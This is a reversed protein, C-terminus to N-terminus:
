RSEEIRLIQDAAADKLTQKLGSPWHIEVLRASSDKGLGFFVRKDNAALYSSTASVFRHQEFGGAGVVRIRAGVADRNSKHGLLHLGVWHNGNAGQNRLVVAPEDLCAVAMDAFGDNNLDGFAAGRGALPKGFADGAQGSVDAFKGAQNRLLKLPERYALNPQTLQINDMVHGQAVILDKWGDNDFDVLKMGWGSNLRTAAGVGTEAGVYEFTGKRNKYIAYRQSALANIVLDPWGDNDYDDFDIGMGGYTNGDEDYAVGAEFGMERFRGGGLNHFLQQPFSDNAVAIDALGDRDFDNLAIGLGKGPAKTFGARGSIDEFTGDGRNRYLLHHAPQFQDPHCYSRYGPRRAGCWIDPVFDWQVYRVVALDLWGDNEADLFAASSSWGGGAVGALSTVDSFSGDGNNRFLQNAPWATVYLDTYGDNDFDGAAVGMGYGAGKVGAKETIDRFTGDGNNRYLRNWYKRDAKVPRAATTMPDKLEAGNVFYLDLWGDNDCDFMAVGGTTSEILYKRSTKSAQHRFRVGSTETIDVFVPLGAALALSAIGCICVFRRM